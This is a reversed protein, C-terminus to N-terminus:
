LRIVASSRCLSAVELHMWGLSWLQSAQRASRLGLIMPSAYRFCRQDATCTFPNVLMSSPQRKPASPTMLQLTTTTAANVKARCSGADEPTSGVSIQTDTVVVDVLRNALPASLTITNTNADFATSTIAAVGKVVFVALRSGLKTGPNLCSHAIDLNLKDAHVKTVVAHCAAPHSPGNAAAGVSIQTGAVIATLLNGTLATSLTITPTTPDYAVSNLGTTTDRLQWAVSGDLCVSARENRIRVLEGRSFKWHLQDAGYGQTSDPKLRVLFAAGAELAQASALADIQNVMSGHFSKADVAALTFTSGATFPGTHAATTVRAYKTTPPLDQVVMSSDAFKPSLAAEVRYGDVGLGGSTDVQDFSLDLLQPSLAGVVANNLALPSRTPAVGLASASTFAGVGRENVAAVRVFYITGTDLRRISYKLLGDDVSTDTVNVVASGFAVPAQGASISAVAANADANTSTLLRDNAVLLPFAPSSRPVQSTFTITWVYNNATGTSMREVRVLGVSPLLELAEQMSSPTVDMPLPTTRWQTYLQVGTVTDGAYTAATSGLASALIGVSQFGTADALPLQSATFTGTASVLYAQSNLYVVDGAVLLGTLDESTKLYAAGHEVSVTGPLLRWPYLDSGDGFSLSFFGATISGTTSVTQVVPAGFLPETVAQQYWEVHYEFVDVAAEPWSVLLATGPPQAAPDNAATIASPAAPKRRPMERAPQTLVPEGTGVKGNLAFLRVYTWQGTVLGSITYRFAGDSAAELPGAAITM